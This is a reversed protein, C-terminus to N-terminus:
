KRSQDRKKHVERSGFVSLTCRHLLLMLAMIKVLVRM